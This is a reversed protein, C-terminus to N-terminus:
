SEGRSRLDRSMYQDGSIALIMAVGIVMLQTYSSVGLLNLGNALVSVFVVGVAVGLINGRGGFLSIGGLVVAAVSMLALSGGLSPQGTAVRATLIFGGLATFLACVVYTMLETRAVNIGCLRAAERNGGVAYIHRGFKSKALVFHGIVLLVIAIIVPVPVGFATAYALATFGDPLGSIPTGGSLNLAAGSAISLMALTAIFPAVRMRTVVLGNILGVAISALFGFVIGAVWGYLTFGLASAVSVLAVTSGVSLDLGATLIVFTQGFSVCALAAAQLGVNRLNSATMFNNSLFSFIMGMMVVVIPLGIQRLDLRASIGGVNRERQNRKIM